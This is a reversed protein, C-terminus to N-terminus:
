SSGRSTSRRGGSSACSRCCGRIGGAYLMVIGSAFGDETTNQTDKLWTDMTQREEILKARPCGAVSAVDTM